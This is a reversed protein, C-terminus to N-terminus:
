EDSKNQSSNIQPRHASRTVIGNESGNLPMATRPRVELSVDRRQSLTFEHAVLLCFADSTRRMMELEGPSRCDANLAMGSLAVRTQPALNPVNNRWSSPM